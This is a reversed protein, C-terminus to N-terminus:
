STRRPNRAYYRECIIKLVEIPKHDEMGTCGIDYKGTTKGFAEYLCCKTCISINEFCFGCQGGINFVKKFKIKGIWKARSLEFATAKELSFLSEAKDTLYYLSGGDEKFIYEVIKSTKM